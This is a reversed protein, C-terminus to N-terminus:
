NRPDLIKLYKYIGKLIFPPTVGLIIPVLIGYRKHLPLSLLNYGTWRVKFDTIRYNFSKREFYQNNVRYYLLRDELNEVKLGNAIIRFWLEYDQVKKFKENYGGIALIDEKKFMVSPHIIPNVMKIKEKINEYTLPVNRESIVEGNEDINYATTGVLSIEQNNQLYGYQRELRNPHSIDDADMRAIYNGQTLGLAKNLSYTLGRNEKNKIYKIRQDKQAFESIIDASKDQSNDDIIIFEFDGLSQTLTSKIAKVLYKEANYVSMIVSIM